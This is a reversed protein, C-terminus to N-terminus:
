SQQEALRLIQRSVRPSPTFPSSAMLSLNESSTHNRTHLRSPNQNSFLLLLFSCLWFFLYIFFPFFFFFVAVLLISFWWHKFSVAVWSQTAANRCSFAGRRGRKNMKNFFFPRQMLVCAPVRFSKNLPRALVHEQQQSLSVSKCYSVFYCLSM